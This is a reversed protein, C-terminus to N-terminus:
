IPFINVYLFKSPKDIYDYFVPCFTNTHHFAKCYYTNWLAGRDETKLHRLRYYYNYYFQSKDFEEEDSPFFEIGIEDEDDLIDDREKIIMSILESTGEVFAERFIQKEEDDFFWTPGERYLELKM